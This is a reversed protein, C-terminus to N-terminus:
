QSVRQIEWNEELFSLMGFQLYISGPYRQFAVRNQAREEPEWPGSNKENIKFHLQKKRLGLIIFIVNYVPYAIYIKRRLNFLNFIYSYIFMCQM